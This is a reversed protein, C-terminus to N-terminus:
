FVPIIGIELEEWYRKGGIEGWLPVNVDLWNYQVWFRVHETSTCWIWINPAAQFTVWWFMVQWTVDYMVLGRCSNDKAIACSHTHTHHLILVYAYRPTHRSHHYAGTGMLMNQTYCNVNRKEYPAAARHTNEPKGVAVAFSSRENSSSKWELRSTFLHRFSKAFVGGSLKRDIVTFTSSTVLRFNHFHLHLLQRCSTCPLRHSWKNSSRLITVFWHLVWQIILTPLLMQIMLLNQRWMHRKNQM